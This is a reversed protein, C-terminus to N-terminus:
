DSRRDRRGGPGFRGLAAGLAFSLHDTAPEPAYQAEYPLLPEDEPRDVAAQAWEQAHRWPSPGPRRFEVSHERHSEHETFADDLRALIAEHCELPFLPLRVVDGIEFHITPNYAQLIQRSRASNLLCLYYSRNNSFVSTATGDIICRWRHIRASFDAGIMTFAVGPHFYLSENRIQRTYSGYIQEALLKTELGHLRWNVIEDVPDFWVRREGGKLYRAWDHQYPPVLSEEFRVSAFRTVGLEWGNRVFRINNGTIAGVKPPSDDGVKQHSIVLRVFEESWWYIIPAAPISACVSETYRYFGTHCLSAARKRKTRERDYSRDSLPTPQLAISENSTPKANRFVSVVVSLVDNPVEDFAGVAFDGLARLDFSELLWTRLALYQKIFMWNRMTLLASTGGARVLQM